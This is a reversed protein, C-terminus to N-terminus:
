GHHHAVDKDFGHKAGIQIHHCFQCPRNTKRYVDGLLDNIGGAFLAWPGHM